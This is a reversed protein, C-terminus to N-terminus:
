FCLSVRQAAEIITLSIVGVHNQTHQLLRDEFNAGLASKEISWYGLSRLLSGFIVVRRGDDVGMHTNQPISSCLNCGSNRRAAEGTYVIFM